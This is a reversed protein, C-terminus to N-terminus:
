RLYATARCSLRPAQAVGYIISLRCTWCKKQLKNVSFTSCQGRSSSVIRLWNSECLEKCATTKDLIESTALEVASRMTLEVPFVTSHLSESKRRWHQNSFRSATKAKTSMNFLEEYQDGISTPRSRYKWVIPVAEPSFPQKTYQYQHAHCSLVEDHGVRSATISFDLKM